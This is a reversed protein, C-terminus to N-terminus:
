FLQLARFHIDEKVKAKVVVEMPQMRLVVITATLLKGKCAIVPAM